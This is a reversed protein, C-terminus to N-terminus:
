RRILEGIRRLDVGPIARLADIMRRQMPLVRDGSYGATKLDTDVLMVNRPEFGFNSHM